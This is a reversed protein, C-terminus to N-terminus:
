GNLSTSTSKAWHIAIMPTKDYFAMARAGMGPGASAGDGGGM